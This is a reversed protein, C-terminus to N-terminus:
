KKNEYRYDSMIRMLKYIRDTYEISLPRLEANLTKQLEIHDDNEKKYKILLNDLEVPTRNKINRKFSFVHPLQNMNFTM